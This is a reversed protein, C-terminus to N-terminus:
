KNSILPLSPFAQYIEVVVVLVVTEVVVSQMCSAAMVSRTGGQVPLFFFLLKKKSSFGVNVLSSISGDKRALSSSSKLRSEPTTSTLSPFNRFGQIVIVVVFVRIVYVAVLVMAVTTQVGSPHDM